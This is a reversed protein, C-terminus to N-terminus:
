SRCAMRRAAKTEREEVTWMFGQATMKEAFEEAEASSQFVRAGRGLRRYLLMEAAPAAWYLKQGQSM